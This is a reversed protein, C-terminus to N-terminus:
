HSPAASPTPTHTAYAKINGDKDYSLVTFPQPEPGEMGPSGIPMRPVALGAVPPREKLLRIIDTAPVHGEIVYGDVTATHCSMLFLPVGHEDRIPTVDDLLIVQTPFDHAELHEVWKLCCHCTTPKYVKVVPLDGAVVPSSGIGLAVVTIIWFRVASRM